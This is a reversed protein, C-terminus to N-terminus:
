TLACLVGENGQVSRNAMAAAAAKRQARDPTHARSSTAILVLAEVADPALGAVERAVYGGLQFGLPVDARRTQPITSAGDPILRTPMTKSCLRLTARLKDVHM